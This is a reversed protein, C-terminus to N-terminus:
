RDLDFEQRWIQAENSNVEFPDFASVYDSARVPWARSMKVPRVAPAVQLIGATQSNASGNFNDMTKRQEDEVNFIAMGLESEVEVDNAEQLNKM